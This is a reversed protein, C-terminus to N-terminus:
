KLEWNKVFKKVNELLELDNGFPEPNSQVYKIFGVEPVGTERFAILEKFRLHHALAFEQHTFLSLPLEDKNKRHFDIFLFYDSSKLEDTIKMIDNFGQIEIAVYCDLEFEKKLLTRVKEAVEKERKTKQGCSLFVKGPM